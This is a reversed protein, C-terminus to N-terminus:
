INSLNAKDVMPDPDDDMCIKLEAEVCFSEEKRSVKLKTLGFSSAVELEDEYEDFVSKMVIKKAAKKLLRRGRGMRARKPLSKLFDTLFDMDLCQDVDHTVANECNSDFKPHGFRPKKAAALSLCVVLLSLFLSHSPKM